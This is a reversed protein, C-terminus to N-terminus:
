MFNLSISNYASIISTWVDLDDSPRVEFDANIAQQM